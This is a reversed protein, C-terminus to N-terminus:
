QGAVTAPGLKRTQGQRVSIGGAVSNRPGDHLYVPESGCHRRQLRQLNRAYDVPSVRVSQRRAALSRRRFLYLIVCLLAAGVSSYLQTPHGPLCRYKGQTVEAKQIETLDELHKPYWMGDDTEYALYEQQPLKLHPEARNRAPDANIQSIYVFSDYPFRVGWPLDTPKGYCDANLFCGIRGFALGLMLGVAFVDFCRRISLRRYLVCFLIVVVALIVGGLFELGGEWISFIELPRGRFNEGHHVIFFLRSGVVGAVLAYLATNMIFEPDVPISRSLRRMLAVAALFGIVMTVGYSKITVHIFPIEFLEPCM